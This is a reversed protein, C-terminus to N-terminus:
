EHLNIGTEKSDESKEMMKDIYVPINTFQGIAYDQNFNHIDGYSMYNDDHIEQVVCRYINRM